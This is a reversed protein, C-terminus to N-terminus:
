QPKARRFFFGVIMGGWAIFAGGVMDPTIIRLYALFSLIILISMGLIIGLWENFNWSKM